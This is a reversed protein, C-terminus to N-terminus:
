ARRRLSGALQVAGIAGLLLVLLWLGRNAPIGQVTSLGLDIVRVSVPIATLPPYLPDDSVIRVIRVDVIQSGNIARNDRTSLTLAQPVNWLSPALTVSVPEFTYDLDGPRGPARLVAELDVRVPATPQSGLTLALATSQGELIEAPGTLSLRVAAADNDVNTATFNQAPLAAFDPDSGPLVRLTLSVTQDGDDIFEDVGRLTFSQTVTANAQTFTLEVPEGRVEGPNSTAITIRVPTATTPARNLVVEIRGTEGSESTSLDVATLRLEAPPTFDDNRNIATVDPPDIGNYRTDQSVASGLVIVGEIDPDLITDDVGTVVVRRPQQWTAPEFVIQTRDLAFETTDPNTLPVSIAATPETSLRVDFFASGGAETTEITGTPTITFAAAVDNDRNIAPVDPPNIGSYRSDGSVIPALGIVGLVDGDIEFDNVGTVTVTQAATSGSPFILETRDLSWESTDSNSLAIRVESSPASSLRASITATTREESTDISGNPTVFVQAQEDDLNTVVVNPPNIGAYRTDTSVAAATVIQGVVNGDIESDNVGTVTVTQAAFNNPTFTLETPAVAFETADGSSLAVQVPATPAVTLRVTFGATTGTESVILGTTPEVIIQPGDDDLNTLAVDSPDIGNFRADASTAAQLSLTGTQDGDVDSDNVPRVLVSRGQQWNSANLEISLDLVLWESLDVAGIPITVPATPAANLRVVFSQPSGSESTTISVPEVIITPAENDANRAVVDAPNIGNFRADSSQAAATVISGTQLGDLDTDDVGTVTLSQPAQWNAPTISITPASLAFETSDSSSVAVTIPSTPEANVSFSVVATTGSEAVDIAAPSVRIAITDDDLNSVSVDPGDIGNYTADSSTAPEVRITASQDGDALDDNVGTLTVTRPDSWNSSTFVLQTPAMAFESTDPNTLPVTVNASPATALRVTFMATQGSESTVLGQTPTVLVAPQPLGEVAFPEADLVRWSAGENIELLCAHDVTNFGGTSFEQSVVVDTGPALNASFPASSKEVGSDIEVVRRRLPLNSLPASGRNRATFVCTQAQGAPVSARSVNVFGEVLQTPTVNKGFSSNDTAYLFGTLRSRLRATVTYVGSATATDVFVEGDLSAGAFLDNIAIAREFAFGNPGAVTVVVEPSRIVESASLNQARYFLQPVEAAAYEAKSPRISVGGAPGSADGNIAFSVTATDIVVGEDNRLSGVLVYSGALTGTSNWSQSRARNEAAPVAAFAEDNLTTTTRSQGDRILWTVSFDAPLAGQNAVTATAVVSEGPRYSLKDTALQLDGLGNTAGFAIVRQNNQERCERARGQQDVVAYLQGSGATSVEGLDVIQFRSPRLTDLRLQRLLTGGAAPDGRYLGLMPPSHADVPGANGVRVRAIPLRGPGQDILRLDGVSFDPMGLPDPLPSRQVRYTNHTLWSPEELLPISSNERVNDIHFSHSGWVSGADAWAGNQAEFVRVGPTQAGDVDFEYGTIIIEAEKDGDIDVVVPYEYVTPSTNLTFYLQTGTQADFMRLNKEDSHIVELVGDNEFDFVTASTVGSVDDIDKSWKVTGDSEFVTLKASVGGQPDGSSVIIEPLGDDDVDAVSPAGITGNDPSFKPGWITAGTHELLWLEDNIALVIEAFNDSDFNGVANTGSHNLLTGGRDRFPVNEIDGRHWVTNGEFDYMSRGAIVEMTGNLDVDAAISGIGFAAVLPTNAPKGGDGGADNAGEWLVEGTLGRFVKRGLVVEAELDGELNVIIPLDYVYPEPFPRNNPKRPGGVPVRWKITGDHEFAIIEERWNRVAIIEAIGDNDIDGAVTSTFMSLLIDTRSWIEAGTDGSLAVIATRPPEVSFKEGAVFVVDPIDLQNIVGDANDDTLQTVSPTQNLSNINRNSALGRWHWKERVNNQAILAPTVRCGLLSSGTNNDNDVEIVENEADVWFAVPADRFQLQATVAIDIDVSGGIAVDNDERVRGVEPETAPDYVGNDNADLFALLTFDQTVTSTGANVVEVTFQDALVFTDPESSALTSGVIRLDPLYYAITTPKLGVRGIDRQQLPLLPVALTASEYADASIALQTTPGQLGSISFQGNAASRVTRQGSPDTVVILANEIPRRNAQNVITGSIRATNGDIPTTGTPYLRPSFLLVQNDVLRTTANVVDFDAKSARINVAAGAASQLSYSGDVATLTSVAPAGGVVAVQAGSIPQNTTGHRIVGRIIAGAQASQPSLAFSQDILGRSAATVQTEETSFGESSARLTVIGPTVQLFQYRGDADTLVSTSPSVIRVQAGVIPQGTEVSTVMGRIVAFDDQPTNGQIMRLDGLELVRGPAVTLSFLVDRMGTFRLRAQYPGPTLSTTQIRGQNNTTLAVTATGSLELTAGEIPLDTAAALVRARLGAGTPPVDPQEFQWLARAAVATVYADGAFSGNPQQLARLATVSSQLGSRPSRLAILADLALGTELIEGFSQDSRRKGLIFATARTIALGVDFRTRIAALAMSVEATAFVSSLNGSASLWGGDAQQQTGLFGVARAVPTGAGQGARDLALIAYATTLAESQLGAVPPFGGDANQAALLETLQTTAAQGQDLRLRAQRALSYLNPQLDGIARQVTLAFDGSRSLRQVTLLAEANTDVRNALDSPRHVGQAAEERGDLWAMAADVNAQAAQPQAAMLLAAAVWAVWVSRLSM